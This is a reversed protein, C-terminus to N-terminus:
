DTTKTYEIVFSATGSLGAMDYLILNQNTNTDFNLNACIFTSSGYYSPITLFQSGMKFKGRLDTVDEINTIDTSVRIGTGSSLTINSIVKRYIPKGDISVKNTKVESTSYVDEVANAIEVNTQNASYVNTESTSHENVVESTNVASPHAKIIYNVVIYPQLNGSDGTGANATPRTYTKDIVDNASTNYIRDGYGLGGPQTYTTITIDHSHEQLYKSGGTEGLTDFETQTTDLMVLVKGEVNPTNFTTSTEGYTGGIVNYLEPYQSKLLTQNCMVYGEPATSGAYALMSGVPLSEGGAGSGSVGVLTTGNYAYITMSDTDFVVYFIDAQPTRGTSGWTNPSTAIYIQKTTTNFYKDGTQCTAPASGVALLKEYSKFIDNVEWVNNNKICSVAKGNMFIMIHNLTTYCVIAFNDINYISDNGEYLTTAYNVGNIVYFGTDINEIDCKYVGYGGLASIPLEKVAGMLYNYNVKLWNTTDSKPNTSTSTGTINEYVENEYVVIENIGYSGSSSWTDVGLKLTDLTLNVVKKIQNLDVAKCKNIDPITPDINIAVKDEYNIKAM